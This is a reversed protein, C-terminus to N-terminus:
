ETIDADVIFRGEPKTVVTGDPYTRQVDYYYIGAPMDMDAAIITIVLNSTGEFALGNGPTLEKITQGGSVANAIRMKFTSATIDEPTIVTGSKTSFQLKTSFTDRRKVTIDVVAKTYTIAAAAM